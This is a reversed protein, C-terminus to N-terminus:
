SAALGNATWARPPGSHVIRYVEQLVDAIVVISIVIFAIRVGLNYGRAIEAVHAVPLKLSTIEIWTGAHYVVGILILTCADILLRLTSHLRMRAPRLLGVLGAPIGSMALLLIPWFNNQWVPALSFGFAEFRFSPHFRALYIWALTSLVGWVLEGIAVSRPGPLNRPAVPVPPLSRPDWDPLTKSQGHFQFRELCVFILTIIGFTGLAAGPLGRLMNLLAANPNPSSFYLTPTVILAYIPVMIGLILKLVFCYGPFWAPGILSQRSGYGSAVVIPQGRKKLIAVVEDEKLKRGLETERDEIQSNLDESLEAIIDDQQTRPLWVKVAHLYRDLLDM